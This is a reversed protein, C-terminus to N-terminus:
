SALPLLSASLELEATVDTAYRYWVKKRREAATPEKAKM